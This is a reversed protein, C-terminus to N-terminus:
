IQQNYADCFRDASFKTKIIELSRNGMAVLDASTCCSMMCMKEAMDDVSYPNILCGNVGDRMIYPNDCVNSAIVPLGCAMAECLVNPFGEYISPLVFVDAAHYVSVIDQTAAHFQFCDQLAFQHVLAKCQELYSEPYPEGYWDVRFHCGADKAKKVAEIFRLPNKQEVVRGVVVFRTIASPMKCEAPVFRITDVMNTITVVKDRLFPYNKEIFVQQSYSNPVIVDAFRFLNMRLKTQWSNTQTTNRESVILRFPHRSCLKGIVAVISPNELYAIVVDPKFTEVKRKFMRIINWKGKTPCHEFPIRHEHLYNDYFDSDWYDLLLIEHNQEHLLKALGVLQRQAGGSGLIDIFLLIKRHQM